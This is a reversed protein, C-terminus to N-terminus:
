IPIQGRIPIIYYGPSIRYRDLEIRVLPNELFSKGPMLEMNLDAVRDKIVGKLRAYIDRGELTVSVINIINGTIDVSGTVTNFFNLPVKVGSFDAPEFSAANTAFDIHGKDNMMTLRGSITGTGRIGFSKFFPVENMEADKFVLEMQMEKGARNMNGSIPGRGVTGDYSLSLRLMILSLPNIRGKINNLSFLEQSSSKLMVNDISLDYFLGKQLGQVELDIMYDKASDEIISEIATAPFAIWICWIVVPVAALAIIIKKGLFGEQGGKRFIGRLGGKTVPSQLPNNKHNITKSHLM